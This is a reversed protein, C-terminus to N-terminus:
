FVQEATRCEKKRRFPYYSSGIGSDASGSSVLHPAAALVEYFEEQWQHVSEQTWVFRIADAKERIVRCGPSSPGEGVTSVPEMTPWAPVEFLCLTEQFDKGGM